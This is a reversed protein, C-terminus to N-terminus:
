GLKSSGCTVTYANKLFCGPDVTFFNNCESQPLTEIKKVEDIEKEIGELAEKQAIILQNKKNLLKALKNTKYEKLANELRKQAEKEM